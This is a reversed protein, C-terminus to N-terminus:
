MDARSTAKNFRVVSVGLTNQPASKVPKAASAGLAGGVSVLTTTLAACVLVARLPHRTRLM